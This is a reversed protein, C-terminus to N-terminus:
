NTNHSSRKSRAEIEVSNGAIELWYLNAKELGFRNRDRFSKDKELHSGPRNFAVFFATKPLILEAARLAFSFYIVCFM